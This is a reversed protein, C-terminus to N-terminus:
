DRYDLEIDIPAAIYHLRKGISPALPPVFLSILVSLVTVARCARLANFRIENSAVKNIVCSSNLVWGVAETIKSVLNQSM